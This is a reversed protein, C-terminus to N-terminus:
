ADMGWRRALAKPPRRHYRAFWAPTVFLRAGLVGGPRWIEWLGAWTTKAHGRELVFSPRVGAVGPRGNRDTCAGDPVHRKLAAKRRRSLRM